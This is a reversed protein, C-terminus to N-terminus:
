SSSIRCHYSNRQQGSNVQDNQELLTHRSHASFLFVCQLQGQVEQVDKRLIYICNFLVNLKNDDASKKNRVTKM